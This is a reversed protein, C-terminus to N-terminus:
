YWVIQLLGTFPQGEILEVGGKKYQWRQSKKLLNSFNIFSINEETIQFHEIVRSIPCLTPQFASKTQQLFKNKVIILLVNGITVIVISLKKMVCFRLQRNAFDLYSQISLCIAQLPKDSLLFTVM